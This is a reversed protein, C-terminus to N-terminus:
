IHTNQFYIMNMSFKFQSIKSKKENIDKEQSNLKLFLGRMIRTITSLITMTMQIAKGKLSRSILEKLHSTNIVEVLNYRSQDIRKNMTM